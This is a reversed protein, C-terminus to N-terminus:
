DILESNKSGFKIILGLEYKIFTDWTLWCKPVSLKVSCFKNFNCFLQQIKEIKLLIFVSQEWIHGIEIGVM